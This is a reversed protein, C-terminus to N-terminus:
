ICQGVLELNASKRTTVVCSISAKRKKTLTWDQRRRMWERPIGGMKGSTDNQEKYDNEMANQRKGDRRYRTPWNRSRVDIQNMTQSHLPVESETKCNKRVQKVLWFNRAESKQRRPMRIMHGLCEMSRKEIKIRVSKIRLEKRVYWRNKHKQEMEKLPPQVKSSWVYRYCQDVKRQIRNIESVNWTRVQCNYLMTSEVVAEVVRAQTLKTLRSNKLRRKVKTWAGM